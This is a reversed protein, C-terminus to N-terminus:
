ETVVVHYRGPGAEARILDIRQQAGTAHALDIARGIGNQAALDSFKVFDQVGTQGQVVVVAPTPQSAEPTSVYVLMNSDGVKVTEWLSAM